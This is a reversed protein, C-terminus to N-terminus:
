HIIFNISSIGLQFTILFDELPEEENLEISDDYYMSISPMRKPHIIMESESIEGEILLINM